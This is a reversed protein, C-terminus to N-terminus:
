PKAPEVELLVVTAGGSRVEFDKAREGGSEGLAIQWGRDTRSFIGLRTGPMGSEPISIEITWPALDSQYQVTGEVEGTVTEILVTTGRFTIKDSLDAPFKDLGNRDVTVVLWKGDLLHSREADGECAAGAVTALLAAVSLVYRRTRIHQAVRM